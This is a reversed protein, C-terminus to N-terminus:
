LFLDKVKSMSDILIVGPPISILEFVEKTFKSSSVVVINRNRKLQYFFISFLVVIGASSIELLDGLDVVIGKNERKLFNHIFNNFQYSNEKEIVGNLTLILMDKNGFSTESIEIKLDAFTIQEMKKAMDIKKAIPLEM